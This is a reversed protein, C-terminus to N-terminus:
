RGPVICDWGAEGTAARARLLHSALKAGQFVVSARIQGETFVEVVHADIGLARGLAGARGDFLDSLMACHDEAARRAREAVARARLAGEEGRTAHGGARRRRARVGGARGGRLRRRRRRRLRRSRRRRRRPFAARRAARRRDDRGAASGVRRRARQHGPQAPRVRLGGPRDGRPAVAAAPGRERGAFRGRHTRPRNRTAGRQPAGASRPPPSSRRARRSESATAARRPTRSARAAADRVPQPADGERLLKDMRDTVTSANFFDKLERHFIRFEEVFEEPYDAGPATLKALMKETAVLDEAGRLPAAQEPHHAQDGRAGRPVQRRPRGQRARHRARADPPVSQTFEATFAPLRPHLRRILARVEEAHRGGGATASAEVAEIHQYIREASGAHHNPRYHSVDEACAVAGVGVWFLYIASYGLADMDAYGARRRSCRRWRRCSRAGLRATALDNEVIRRAADPLGDTNWQNHRDGKGGKHDKLEVNAGAWNSLLAMAGADPPPPPPPPPSPAERHHHREERHHHREEHQQQQQQQQQQAHGEPPGMARARTSRPRSTSSSTGGSTERLWEQCNETRILMTMCTAGSNVPAFEVVRVGNELASECSQADPARSAAPVSQLEDYPSM